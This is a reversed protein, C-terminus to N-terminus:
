TPGESLDDGLIDFGSIRDGGSPQRIDRQASRLGDVIATEHPCGHAIEVGAPAPGAQWLIDGSEDVPDVAVPGTHLEHVQTGVVFAHDYELGAGEALVGELRSGHATVAGLLLHCDIALVEGDGQRRTCGDLDIGAHVAEHVLGTVSKGPMGIADRNWEHPIIM